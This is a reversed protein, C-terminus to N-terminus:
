LKFGLSVSFVRNKNKDDSSSNDTSQLKALGYEYNIGILIKDLQFGATGNLGYDFRRLVGFGAGEQENFTMPDADSWKINKSGNFAVGGLNGEVKNKGAVGMAIYPGEGFFINTNDTGLPIKFILNVPLEIYYPNSTAKYYNDDGPQGSQVKAGNGTFLLSPQLSVYKAVPLDPLFGVQFSALANANNVKGDSTTSVNTINLGGKLFLSSEQVSSYSVVALLLISLIIKTKMTLIKNIFIVNRPLMQYAKFDIQYLVSVSRNLLILFVKWM